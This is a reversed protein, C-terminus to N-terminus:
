EYRKEIVVKGNGDAFVLCTIKTSNKPQNASLILQGTSTVYNIGQDAEQEDNPVREVGLTRFINQLSEDGYMFVKLIGTAGNKHDLIAAAAKVAPKMEILFVHESASGVPFTVYNWHQNEIFSHRIGAKELQASTEKASPIRLAVFVARENKTLLEAYQLTLDDTIPGTLTVLELYTQNAFKIHNNLLGNDHLNGKKITFGDEQYKALTQEYNTYPTLSIVHDLSVQSLGRSCTIIMLFIYIIVIGPVSNQKAIVFSNAARKM